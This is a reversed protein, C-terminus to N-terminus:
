EPEVMDVAAAMLSIQVIETKTRKSERIAATIEDIADAKMRRSIIEKFPELYQKWYKGSLTKVSKRCDYLKTAMRIKEEANM